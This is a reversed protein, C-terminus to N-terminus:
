GDTKDSPAHMADMQEDPILIVYFIRGYRESQVLRGRDIVWRVRGRKTVIRYNVADNERDRRKTCAYIQQWISTNVREYDDPHVIGRFSHKTYHLFDDLDDCEFLSILEENAFLIDEGEADYILISAPLNFVVDRLSFGMQVRRAATMGPAYRRCGNKGHLKVTYLATDADRLVDLPAKGDARDVSYIAYGMSITYHYVTQQYNFEKKLSVFDRVIREAAALDKTPLVIIFEDGGNRALVAERPFFVRMIIALHRLAEDGVQHGYIDNILKFDDIDLQVFLAQHLQGNNLKAKIVAELGHRNLMGTLQDTMAMQRLGRQRDHMFLLIYTLATLMLLAMLGLAAAAGFSSMVNWGNRPALQIRWQCGGYSFTYSVPDVPAVDSELITAYDNYSFGTKELRYALDSKDMNTVTRSFVDSVKIYVATFGWLEQPRNSGVDLFVPMMMALAMGDSQPNMPGLIILEHNQEAYQQALKRQPTAFADFGLTSQKSAPYVSHVVGGPLLQVSDIPLESRKVVYDTIRDFDEMMRGKSNAISMALGNVISEGESFDQQLEDAFVVADLRCHDRLSTMRKDYLDQLMVGWCMLGVLFVCATIIINKSRPRSASPKMWKGRKGM